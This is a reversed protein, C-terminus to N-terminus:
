DGSADGKLMADWDIAFDGAMVSRQEVIPLSRYRSGLNERIAEIAAQHAALMAKFKEAHAATRRQQPAAEWRRLMQVYRARMMQFEWGWAVLAVRDVVLPNSALAGAQELLSRAQQDVDRTYVLHPDRAKMSKTYLTQLLQEYERMPSAAEKWFRAYYDELVAQPDLSPQWMLQAALYFVAGDFAANCVYSEDWYVGDVKMADLTKIKLAIQEYNLRAMPNRRRTTFDYNYTFMHPSHNIRQYPQLEAKIEVGGGGPSAEKHIAAFMIINPAPVQREPLQRYFRYNLVHVFRAPDIEAANNAIENAFWWWRDATPGHNFLVYKKTKPDRTWVQHAAEGPRLRTRDHSRCRDCECLYVRGDPDSISVTDAGQEYHQRVYAVFKKIVQPNTVCINGRAQKRHGNVLGFWEPHAAFTADDYPIVNEWISDLGDVFMTNGCRNRRDVHGSRLSIRRLKFGPSELLDMDGLTLTNGEPMVTGLKGPWIWRFGLEHLVRYVGFLTGQNQHAGAQFDNGFIFLRHEDITRIAYGDREITAPEIGAESALGAIGIYILGGRAQATDRVIPLTAGTAAKVWHRLEAAALKAPASAEDALVISSRAQGGEVLVLASASSAALALVTVTFAFISRIM